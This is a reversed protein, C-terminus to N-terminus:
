FELLLLLHAGWAEYDKAGIGDFYGGLRLSATESFAIDAGLDIRGRFSETPTTGGEEQAFIGSLKGTLVVDGTKTRLGKEFGLGFSAETLSITQGPVPNSASDVYAAQKDRVHSLDFSPILILGSATVFQGEVGATVLTRRTDFRDTGLGDRTLSNRTQGTLVSASFVLPQDAARAVLYPGVLWGEGRFVETPSATRADDFQLMAGLIVNESRMLHAGFTLHVYDQEDEGTKSWEGQLAMWIPSDKGLSLAFSSRDPTASAVFSNTGGPLLFQRLKPQSNILARGRQLLAEAVEDSTAETTTAEITAVLSATNGSAEIDSAVNEPVSITIPAPYATPTLTVIYSMPGGTLSTVNANTVLLDGADFGTVPESFAIGVTITGSADYSGPLASILAAPREGAGPATVTITVSDPASPATGDSVILQFELAVNADGFALTPTAFTPNSAAPDSLTVTPGATQTWAYTLPDNDPDSSGSGNLGPTTGSAVTQDPGANALPVDNPRPLITVNLRDAVSTEIGDDVTLLFVLMLQGNGVADRPPATFTPRIATADSLTVPYGTLQVWSYTLSQGPNNATSRSGDLTILTGSYAVIDDGANASPPVNAPARVTVQVTDPASSEIGDFVVLSFTLVVDSGPPIMPLTVMPSSTAAGSLFTAEPGAIQTWTYTLPQGGDNASSMSGLLSVISGAPGSRDPGANATPPTNPPTQVTIIVTDTVVSYGDLVSLEFELVATFGNALNPATFTPQSTNAGTLTVAPGGIQVWNFTLPGSAPDPDSSGSGDLTVADRTQVTQDPGADAIPASNQNAVIQVTVEDPASWDFGDFVRLVFTLPVPPAGPAVPPALFQMNPQNVIFNVMPGGTQTWEYTLSQGADNPSSAGSSMTVVTRQFAPFDAGANATPQTNQPGEVVVSVSVNDSAIGDSVRLLFGLAESQGIAVVPAVFDLFPTNQGTLTVTPGAIQTWTFSLTQGVDPDSSGSGDLRVAAGSAVTRNPGPDSVPRTNQPGILTINMTDTATDYGDSVALQLVVNETTEPAILPLVVDPSVTNARRFTVQPGSLQTWAYTLTQGADVDSSGTGSLTLVDRSSALQDEGADAVPPTNPPGNVTVVVVDSDEDRGDGVTLRLPIEVSDGALVSPARFSWLINTGSRFISGLVDQEWSWRIFLPGTNDPDTSGTHDLFVTEGANMAFDPGADAVPPVNPVARRNVFTTNNLGTLGVEYEYRQGSSVASFRMGIFDDSLYSGNAGDTVLNTVGSVGCERQLEGPTIDPLDTSIDGFFFYSGGIAWTFQNNAELLYIAANSFEPDFSVYVRCNLGDITYIEDIWSGSPSFASVPTAAM